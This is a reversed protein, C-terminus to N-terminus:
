PIMQLNQTLGSPFILDRNVFVKMLTGQPITITPNVNLYTDVLKQGTQFAQNAFQNSAIAAPSGQTSNFGGQGLGAGISSTQTTSANDTTAEVVSAAGFALASTLVAGSFIEMFKNDVDGKVGARGIADIGPSGIQIDIGDPRILRTWVIFVRDQGRLIGTNYTGILRSGKPIMVDTGHEAFIDHSVIARLTGPLDTNIATELVCDVVKGQAITNGLNGIFSAEATEAESSRVAQAMFASNPDNHEPLKRSDEDEKKKRGGFLGGGNKLVVSQAQERSKRAMEDPTPQGTTQVDVNTLQPPPVVVPPPTIVPEPPVEIPAPPLQPPPAKEKRVDAVQPKALEEPPPEEGNFIMYIITGAGLLLVALIAMTKGPSAGVAPAGADLKSKSAAQTDATNETFDPFGQEEDGGQQQQNVM